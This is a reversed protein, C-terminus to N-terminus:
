TGRNEVLPIGYNNSIHQLFYCIRSFGEGLAHHAFVAMAMVSFMQLFTFFRTRIDNNGHLEHYLTGNLWAWWVIIFIFTFEIAGNITMTLSFSHTLESIIAVYVLDYFLELFTVKRDETLESTKKPKQWWHRFTQIFIM